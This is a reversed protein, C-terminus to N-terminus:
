VPTAICGGVWKWLGYREQKANLRDSTRELVKM